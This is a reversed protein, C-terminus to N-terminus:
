EPPPRFRQNALKDLALGVGARLHRSARGIAEPAAM